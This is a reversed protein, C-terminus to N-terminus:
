QGGRPGGGDDRAPADGCRYRGLVAGASRGVPAPADRRGRGAEDGHAADGEARRRGGGPGAGPAADRLGGPRSLSLRVGRLGLFPNSENELTLGPIPKDGGADLTRVTVPRGRAWAVLRRYCDLQTQEDPLGAAGHFLFETRTLGIGDCHSPDVGALAAPDDVNLLVEIPTGARTRAPRSALEVAKRECARRKEIRLSYRERM